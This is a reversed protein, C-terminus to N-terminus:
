EGDGIIMYPAWYFPHSASIKNKEESGSFVQKIKCVIKNFVGMDDCSIPEIGKDILRIMAQQLQQSKNKKTEIKPDFLNNILQHTAKDSIDWQTVLLNRSGAYFFSKALESLGNTGLENNVYGTKCGLLLVWDCNLDSHSIETTSYFGNDECSLQKPKTLALGFEKGLQKNKCSNEKNWLTHVSFAIIKQQRMIGDRSLQKLATETAKQHLLLRHKKYKKSLFILEDDAYTLEPLDNRVSAGIGILAEQPPKNQKSRNIMRLSVLNPLFSVSYDRILWHAKAYEPPFPPTKTILAAFPLNLLSGEPIILLQTIGKLEEEAPAILLQYLEHALMMNFAWRENGEVSKRLIRIKKQLEQQSIHLRHLHPRHGKRIVMLYSDDANSVYALIAKQPTLLANIENTTLPSPDVLNNFKDWKELTEIKNKVNVKSEQWQQKFTLSTQKEDTNSSTKLSDIYDSYAKNRKLLANKLEYAQNEYKSGKSALKLTALLMTQIDRPDYALQLASLGGEVIADTTMKSNQVSLVHETANIHLLMYHKKAKQKNALAIHNQLSFSSTTSDLSISCEKLLRQTYSYAQQGLKQALLSEAINKITLCTQPHSKGLKKERIKLAQQYYVRAQRYAGLAKHATGLNNLTNAIHPHEPPLIKKKRALIDELSTKAAENKKQSLWLLARNNLIQLSEPHDLGYQQRYISLAKDYHSQANDLEGLYELVGAFNNYSKAISILLKPSFSSQQLRKKILLVQEHKHKARKWEGKAEYVGALNNMIQAKRLKSDPNKGKIFSLAKEFLSEAKDYEAIKDYISAIENLITVKNCSSINNKNKEYFPIITKEIFTLTKKYEGDKLHRNLWFIYWSIRNEAKTEKTKECTINKAYLNTFLLLFCCFIIWKIIIDIIKKEKIKYLM